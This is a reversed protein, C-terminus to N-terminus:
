KVISSLSPVTSALLVRRLVGTETIIGQGKAQCAFSGEGGPKAVVGCTDRPVTFAGGPKSQNVFGCYVAGACPAAGAPLPITGSTTYVTIASVTTALYAMTQLIAAIRM